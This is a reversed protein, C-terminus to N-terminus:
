ENQKVESVPSKELIMDKTPETTTFVTVAYEYLPYISNEAWVLIKVYDIEEDSNFKFNIGMTGASVDQMKVNVLRDDKYAAAVITGDCSAEDFMTSVVYSAGNQVVSAEFNRWPEPLPTEKNIDKEIVDILKGIDLAGYGTYVDYGETYVDRVSQKLYELFRAHNVTPDLQKAIAAAASVMPASFSTGDSAAMAVLPDSYQNDSKLKSIYTSYIRYGPAACTVAENYVSFESPEDALITTNGYKAVTVGELSDEATAARGLSAVSIVNDFAAPYYTEVIQSDSRINGSSAVFIIGKDVGHSIQNKIAVFNDSSTNKTSFGLSINVVDCGLDIAKTIGALVQSFTIKSSGNECIKIVALEVGDAVSSICVNNNTKAALVGSVMTGHGYSDTVVSTNVSDLCNYSDSISGSLDIHVTNIGTDIVGVKVGSGNLNKDWAASANIYPLYWQNGYYPDNTVSSLLANEEVTVSEPISLEAEEDILFDEINNEGFQAVAYEYSPVIYVRESVMVAETDNLEVGEKLVAVCDGEAANAAASLAFFMGFAIASIIRKM